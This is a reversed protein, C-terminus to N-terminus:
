QSCCDFLHKANGCNPKLHRPFQLLSLGVRIEVFRSALHDLRLLLVLDVPDGLGFHVSSSMAQMCMSPSDAAPLAASSTELAAAVSSASNTAAATAKTACMQERRSLWEDYFPPCLVTSTM